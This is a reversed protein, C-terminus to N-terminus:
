MKGALVDKSSYRSAKLGYPNGSNIELYTLADCKYYIPRQDAKVLGLDLLKRLVRRVDDKDEYDRTYVAILRASDKKTPEDTAVKAEIGLEGKVTAGAVAAWFEDVRDATPFVMWKGTIVGTERAAAFIDRELQHRLRNIRLTLPAAPRGKGTKAHESELTTKENEFRHLLNTGKAVFAAVNTDSDSSPLLPNRVFIWPGIDKAKATSPPLRELFESVTEALQWCHPRGDHPHPPRSPAAAPEVTSATEVVMEAPKAAETPKSSGVRRYAIVSHQRPHITSWYHMVDYDSLVRDEL